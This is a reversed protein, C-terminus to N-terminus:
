PEDAEEIRTLVDRYKGISDSIARRAASRDNPPIASLARDLDSAVNSLATRVVWEDDDTLHRTWDAASV